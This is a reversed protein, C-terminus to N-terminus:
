IGCTQRLTKISKDWIDILDDEDDPACYDIVELVFDNTLESYSMKIEFMNYSIGDDKWHFRIHSYARIATVEAQRCESKGWHFTVHKGNSEVQDAFWGELGNPTSIANWLITKSTANLAYELHIKKAKEMTKMKEAAM